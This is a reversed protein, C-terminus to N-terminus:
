PLYLRARGTEILWQNLSYGWGLPWIVALWRGYKGSRDMVSRMLVDSGVPCHKRVEDRVIIGEPREGGRLEPTDVGFLRLKQEHLITKFGLDIDCTMSDGDYVSVIRADYTYAARAPMETMVIPLKFKRTGAM